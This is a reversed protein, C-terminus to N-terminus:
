EKLIYNKEFAGNTIKKMEKLQQFEEENIKLKHKLADLVEYLDVLELVSYESEIFENAEEIIKEALLKIADLDSVTKCKRKTAEEIFFAVKDRIIKM